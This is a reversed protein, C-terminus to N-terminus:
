ALRSQSIIGIDTLLRDMIEASRYDGAREIAAQKMKERLRPDLFYGIVKGAIEEASEALFGNTGDNIIDGPGKTRYAVVPLGCSMAELVVCSFTDFRSPMILIDAKRYLEPLDTHEVWGTYFAEPLANKMETEAPGTGAIVMQVEPLVTRVMRYIAPLELVGKERSLRGTFLMIPLAPEFNWRKGETSIDMIIQPETHIENIGNDERAITKAGDQFLGDAWHATLFVRSPDMGTQHGTLWGQQETNLVFINSYSKYYWQLLHRLLATSAKGFSLVNAAFTIWDTHLFFSVPVGYWKKLWLATFGMPGETSCIIRTYDGKKFIRMIELPGPIRFPQNRYYPIPFEVVPRIIILHDASELTSSSVLIDVPLNRLQIENLIAHLVTSIGNRDSFTDSLWLLRGEYRFPAM